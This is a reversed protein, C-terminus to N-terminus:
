VLEELVCFIKIEGESLPDISVGVDCFLLVDVCCLLVDLWFRSFTSFLLGVGVWLMSISEFVVGFRSSFLMVFLSVEWVIGNPGTEGVFWGM